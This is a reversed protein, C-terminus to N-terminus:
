MRIAGDLRRRRQDISTFVNCHVSSPFLRHRIRHASRKTNQQEGVVVGGPRRVSQHHVTQALLAVFDFHQGHEVIKRRQVIVIRALPQDEVPHLVEAPLEPGFGVHGLLQFLAPKGEGAGGGLSQALRLV